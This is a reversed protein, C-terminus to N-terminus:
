EAHFCTVEGAQKEEGMQSTDAPWGSLDVLTQILDGSEADYRFVKPGESVLIGLHPHHQVSYPYKLARDAIYADFRAKFRGPSESALVQGSDGHTRATQNVVRLVAQGNCWEPAQVAQYAAVIMDPHCDADNLCSLSLGRPMRQDENMAEPGKGTCHKVADGNTDRCWGYDQRGGIISLGATTPGMPHSVQVIAGTTANLQIVQRTM